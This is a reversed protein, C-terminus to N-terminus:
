APEWLRLCQGPLWAARFGGFASLLGWAWASYGFIYGVYGWYVMIYELM